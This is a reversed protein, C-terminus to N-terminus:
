NLGKPSLPLAGDSSTLSKQLSSQDSLLAPVETFRTQQIKSLAHAIDRWIGRCLGVLEEAM